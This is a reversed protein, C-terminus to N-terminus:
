ARPSALETWLAKYYRMLREGTAEDPMGQIEALCVRDYNAERLLRFLERYPYGSHLENIHCSKIWPRLLRFYEAVSGNVIDTQNSNWTVGVRPHDATRMMTAIHPPHATGRGHVEVWIEVGTDDAARGCERLARGIQELTRETTVGQPLDNPRVKVGRGGIDRVLECFQRCTDINRRVVAQDTSHFECVTGCGWIEIGADQFRRRVDRRQDATLTPEVGHRHTTRLEVPSLGVARCIRLLATLDWTAAINYTVIGLRYRLPPENRPLQPPQQGSLNTAILGASTMAAAGALFDRRTSDSM